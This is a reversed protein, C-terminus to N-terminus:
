QAPRLGVYHLLDPAPRQYSALWADLETRLQPLAQAWPHLHGLEQRLKRWVQEIPNCWSAYTPLPVLQIPLRLHGWKRRAAESATTPWHGPTHGPFATVQPELAVLLDPHWHVPWNDLVIWLRSGAPAAAVLHGFFTVLRPVTVKVTRLSHLEGSVADLAGLIRTATNSAHSRVARPQGAGREAWATALTPQRYVTMEDLFLVQHHAPVVQAALRLAAVVELKAPYDPDPSHVYDQGRKGAIGLRQLLRGLGRLTGLRLWPCCALLDRLRWRSRPIGCARPSRRLLHM